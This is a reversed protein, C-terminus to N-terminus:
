LAHILYCEDPGKPCIDIILATLFSTFMSNLLIYHAIYGVIFSVNGKQEVACGGKNNEMNLQIIKEGKMGLM